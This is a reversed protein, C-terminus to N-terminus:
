TQVVQWISGSTEMRGSLDPPRWPIVLGIPSIPIMKMKDEGGLWRHRPGRDRPCTPRSERQSAMRSTSNAAGVIPLTIVIGPLARGLTVQCHPGLPTEPMCIGLALRSLQSAQALSSHEGESPPTGGLQPMKHANGASGSSDRARKANKKTVLTFDDQDLNQAGEDGSSLIEGDSVDNSSTPLPDVPRPTSQGVPLGLGGTTTPNSHSSHTAHASHCM